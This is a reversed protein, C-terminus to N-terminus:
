GPLFVELGTFLLRLARLHQCDSAPNDSHQELIFFLKFFAARKNSSAKSKDLKKM